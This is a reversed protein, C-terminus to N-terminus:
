NEGLGLIVFTDLKEARHVEKHSALIQTNNNHLVRCDEIQVYNLPRYYSRCSQFISLLWSYLGSVEHSSPRHMKVLLKYKRSTLYKISLFKELHSLNFTKGEAFPSVEVLECRRGIM